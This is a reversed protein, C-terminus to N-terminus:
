PLLSLFSQQLTISSKLAAVGVQAQIQAQTPQNSVQPINADQVIGLSNNINQSTTNLNMNQTPTIPYM